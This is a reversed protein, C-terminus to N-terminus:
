TQFFKRHSRQVKGLDCSPLRQLPMQCVCLNLLLCFSEFHVEVEVEMGM